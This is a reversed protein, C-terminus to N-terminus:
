IIVIVAIAVIVITIVGTDGACIGILGAAPLEGTRVVGRYNFPGFVRSDADVQVHQERLWVDDRDELTVAGARDDGAARDTSENGGIIIIQRDTEPLLIAGAVCADGQKIVVIVIILEINVDVNRRLDCVVGSGGIATLSDILGPPM